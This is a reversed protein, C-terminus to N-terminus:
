SLYWPIPCPFPCPFPRARSRLLQIQPPKSSLQITNEHHKPPCHPRQPWQGRSGHHSVNSSIRNLLSLPTEPTYCVTLPDKSGTNLARLTKLSRSFSQLGKSAMTSTNRRHQCHEDNNFHSIFSAGFFQPREADEAISPCIQSADDVRMVM